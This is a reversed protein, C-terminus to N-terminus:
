PTGAPTSALVGGGLDDPEPPTLEYRLLALVFFVVALLAVSNRVGSRAELVWLLYGATTLLIFLITLWAAPSM